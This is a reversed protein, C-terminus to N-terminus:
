KTWISFNSNTTNWVYGYRTSDSSISLGSPTTFGCSRCTKITMNSFSTRSTSTGPMDDGYQHAEGEWEPVWPASWWVAPDFNTRALSTGGAQMVIQGASFDYLQTYNVTGSPTSYEKSVFGCADCKSYQSFIYVTSQGAHRGYGSQAYGGNGATGNAMMTWVSVDSNSSGCLGPVKTNINASVGYHTIGRPDTGDFYFGATGCAVTANAPGVAPSLLAVLAGALLATRLTM